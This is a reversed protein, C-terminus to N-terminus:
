SDPSHSRYFGCNLEFKSLNAIDHFRASNKAAAFGRLDIASMRVGSVEQFVAMQLGSLCQSMHVWTYTRHDLHRLEIKLDDGVESAMHLGGCVSLGCFHYNSAIHVNIGPYNFDILKFIIDDSSQPWKSAM